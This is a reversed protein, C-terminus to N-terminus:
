PTSNFLRKQKRKLVASTGIGSFALLTLGMHHKPVSQPVPDPNARVKALYKAM